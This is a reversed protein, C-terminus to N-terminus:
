RCLVYGSSSKSNLVCYLIFLFLDDFSSSFSHTLIIPNSIIKLIYIYMCLFPFPLLMETFGMRNAFTNSSHMRSPSFFCSSWQERWGAGITHEFRAELVQGVYAREVNFLSTTPKYEGSIMDTSFGRCTTFSLRGTTPRALGRLFSKM